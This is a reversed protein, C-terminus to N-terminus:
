VGEGAQDTSVPQRVRGHARVVHAILAFHAANLALLVGIPWIAGGMLAAILGILNAASSIVLTAVSLGTRHDRPAIM